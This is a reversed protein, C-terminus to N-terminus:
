PSDFALVVVPQEFTFNIVQMNSTITVLGERDIAEIKLTLQEQEEVGEPKVGEFSSEESESESELTEIIETPVEEDDESV